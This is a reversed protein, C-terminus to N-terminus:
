DLERKNNMALMYNFVEIADNMKNKAILYRPSEKTPWISILMGLVSPITGIAILIRWQGPHMGPILELGIALAMIPGLLFAFITIIFSRARYAVPMIETVYSAMAVEYIGCGIGCIFQMASFSYAEPVSCSGIAGLFTLLTGIRILILRGIVDELAGLMVGLGFGAIFGDV